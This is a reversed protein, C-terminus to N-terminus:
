PRLCGGGVSHIPNRVVHQQFFQYLRSVIHRVFKLALYIRQLFPIANAIAPM